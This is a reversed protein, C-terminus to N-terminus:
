SADKAGSHIITGKIFVFVWENMVAENSKRLDPTKQLKAASTTFLDGVSTKDTVIIPVPLGAQDIVSMAGNVQSYDSLRVTLTGSRDNTEILRGEGGNGVHKTTHDADYAAIVMDGDAWGSVPVGGIIVSVKLPNYLAKDAM